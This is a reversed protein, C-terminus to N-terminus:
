VIIKVNDRGVLENANYVSSKDWNVEGKVNCRIFINGNKVPLRPNFGWKQKLEINSTQKLYFTKKNM